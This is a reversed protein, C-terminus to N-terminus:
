TSNGEVRVNNKLRRVVIVILIITKFDLITWHVSM